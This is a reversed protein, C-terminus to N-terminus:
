AIIRPYSAHPPVKLDLCQLAAGIQTGLMYVWEKWSRRQVRIKSGLCKTQGHLHTIYHQVCISDVSTEQKRLM